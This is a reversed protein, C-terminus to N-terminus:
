RYFHYRDENKKEANNRLQPPSILGLHAFYIQVTIAVTATVYYFNLLHILHM